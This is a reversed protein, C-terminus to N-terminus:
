DFNLDWCVVQAHFEGALEQVLVELMSNDKTWVATFKILVPKRLRFQLTLVIFEAYRIGFLLYLM